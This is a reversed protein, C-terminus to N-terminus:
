HSKASQKLAAIIKHPGWARHGAVRLQREVPGQPAAYTIRAGYLSSQPDFTVQEIRVIKSLM